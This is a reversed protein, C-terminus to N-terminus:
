TWKGIIAWMWRLISDKQKRTTIKTQTVIKIILKGKGKQKTNWKTKAHQNFTEEKMNKTLINAINEESKM